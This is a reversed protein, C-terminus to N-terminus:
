TRAKLSAELMGESLTPHAHITEAIDKVKCGMQMALVGEAILDTAHAGIIHVGLIKGDEENSVIKVQGAIEGIVHAKGLTRFLINDSVVNYGQEKAQIETLGVNAVEPMTFIAGPVITYDMKRKGGMANEGAVMGETSAVHALMIKSPGLTDGVAYIDSNNTKMQNDTKIWGKEDLKIGYNELSANRTNSERGICVLMKEAEVIDPKSMKNKIKQKSSSPGITARVKGNNEDVEIVTSNTLFNIKRKKMERQLIKSCDEDVSPIPLLRPMAEVLTVSSGLSAFIFAFECGIIGGGVILLSKPISNLKLADSSSIIKQGNVPFSSIHLPQSGLAVILKDWSVDATGGGSLNVTAQKSGTIYGHGKLFRIKNASLLSLIGKTQSQIVEQQRLMLRQMDPSFNGNVSIGFEEAKNFKNMMEATTKMIKSPICGCNLCTGGVNDEEIITVDGGLKAAQIAAAYGGPGAGIITVKTVM